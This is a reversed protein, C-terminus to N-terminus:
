GSFLCAFFFFCFLVLAVCLCSCKGLELRLSGGMVHDVLVSSFFRRGELQMAFLFFQANPEQEALATIESICCTYRNCSWGVVLLGKLEPLDACHIVFHVVAM